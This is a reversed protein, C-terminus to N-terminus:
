RMTGDRSGCKSDKKMKNGDLVFLSEKIGDAWVRCSEVAQCVNQAGRGRFPIFPYSRTEKRKATHVDNVVVVDDVLV